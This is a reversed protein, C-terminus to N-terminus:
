IFSEEFLANFLFPNCSLSYRSLILKLPLIMVRLLVNIQLMSFLKGTMEVTNWTFKGNMQYENWLPFYKKDNIAESYLDNKIFKTRCYIKPISDIRHLQPFKEFFIIHLFISFDHLLFNPKYFFGPLLSVISCDFNIYSQISLECM